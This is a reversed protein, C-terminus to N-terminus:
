DGSRDNMTIRIIDGITGIPNKPHFEDKHFSKVHIGSSGYKKHYAIYGHTQGSRFKYSTIFTGKIQDSEACKEYELYDWGADAIFDRIETKSNLNFDRAAEKEARSTFSVKQPTEECMRILDEIDIKHKDD